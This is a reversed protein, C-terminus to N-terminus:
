THFPRAASLASISASTTNGSSRRRVVLPEDLRLAHLSGLQVLRFRCRRATQEVLASLSMWGNVIDDACRRPPCGERFLVRQVPRLRIPRLTFDPPVFRTRASAALLVLFAASTLPSDSDPQLEIGAGGNVNQLVDAFEATRCSLRIWAQLAQASGSIRLM